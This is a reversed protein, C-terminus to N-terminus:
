TQTGRLRRVEADLRSIVWESLKVGDAQAAKVYAAKKSSPVRIHLHSDPTVDHAANRRGTNGHVLERAAQWKDSAKESASLHRFAEAMIDNADALTNAGLGVAVLADRDGSMRASAADYVAKAGHIKIARGIISKAM